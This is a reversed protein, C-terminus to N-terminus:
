WGNAHMWAELVEPWREPAAPRRGLGYGHGGTPYAHLEAPVGHERMALFYRISNEVPVVTDDASHILFAPPTQPGVRQDASFRDVLAPAPDPGLLNRRSGAHTVGAQMSVVPYVLISFDPRASVGDGPEYVREAFMTSATAALSGGASFGMIGIRAPQVRWEAARRRVTRIAEQADQLPGISKDAMIADSPLRYKLIIGAIGRASCWRAIQLGEHDYALGAYSGGPCIVIATGTAKEGPPLFVELAPETVQRYSPRAPDNDRYTVVEQYAPDLRAGPPPGPWLKIVFHSNAASALTSAALLCTAAFALSRPCRRM